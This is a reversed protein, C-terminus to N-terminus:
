RMVISDASLSNDPDVDICEMSGVIVTSVGGWLIYVFMGVLTGYRISIQKQKARFYKSRTSIVYLIEIHLLYCFTCFLAAMIPIITALEMSNQYTILVGLSNAICTLPLAQISAWSFYGYAQLIRSTSYPLQLM